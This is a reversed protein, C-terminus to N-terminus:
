SMMAPMSMAPVLIATARPNRLATQKGERSEGCPDFETRVANDIVRDVRDLFHGSLHARPGCGDPDTAPPRETTLPTQNEGGRVERPPVLEGDDFQDFFPEANRREEIVVGVGGGESLILVARARRRFQNIVIRGADAAADDDVARRTVPHAVPRALEPVDWGAPRDGPPHPERPQQFAEAGSPMARRARAFTTPPSGLRRLGSPGVTDRRLRLLLQARLRCHGHRHPSFRNM